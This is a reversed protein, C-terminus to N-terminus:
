AKSIIHRVRRLVHSNRLAVRIISKISRAFKHIYRGSRNRYAILEFSDVSNNAWLLKYPEEGITFDFIKLGLDTCRTILYEIHLHGVSFKSYKSDFAPIWYFYTSRNRIGIVISALEGDINLATIELGLDNTESRLLDGLFDRWRTDGFIGKGVKSEQRETQMEILRDLHGEIDAEPVVSFEIQRDERDLRNRATRINQRFRKPRTAIFPVSDSHLEVTPSSTVLSLAPTLGASKSCKELVSLAESRALFRKLEIRNWSYFEQCHHLIEGVIVAPNCNSSDILIDMYDAALDDGLFGLVPQGLTTIGGPLFM